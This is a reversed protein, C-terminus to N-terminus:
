CLYLLVSELFKFKSLLIRNRPFSFNMFGGRCHITTLGRKNVKAIQELVKVIEPFTPKENALKDKAILNHYHM